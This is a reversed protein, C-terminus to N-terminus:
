PRIQPNVRTARINVSKTEASWLQASSMWNKKDITEKLITFSGNGRSNTKMLEEVVTGDELRSCQEIEEKLRTIAANIYHDDDVM